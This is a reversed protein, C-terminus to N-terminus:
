NIILEIVRKAGEYLLNPNSFHTPELNYCAYAFTIFIISTLLIPVIFNKITMSYFRGYGDWGLIRRLWFIMAGAAIACAYFLYIHFKPTLSTVWYEGNSVTLCASIIVLLLILYMARVYVITRM